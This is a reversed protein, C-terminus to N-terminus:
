DTAAKYDFGSQHYLQTPSLYGRQLGALCLLRIGELVERFVLQEFGELCRNCVIQARSRLSGEVLIRSGANTLKLRMRVPEGLEIGETQLPMEREVTMHAGINRKIERIDIKEM